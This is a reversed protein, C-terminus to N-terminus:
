ERPRERGNAFHKVTQEDVHARARRLRSFVTQLPVEMLEAIDAGTHGGLEYLLFTDRQEDTLQALLADLIVRAQHVQIARDPGPVHDPVEPAEDGPERRVKARRRLDIAVHRAISFLWTRHSSRGEFSALSRYAAVFTDHAADEIDADPVGLMSLWRWVERLHTSYLRALLAQDHAATGRAVVDSSPLM